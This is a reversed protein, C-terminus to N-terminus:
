QISIHYTYPSYIYGVFKICQSASQYIRQLVSIPFPYEFCVPRLSVPAIVGLLLIKLKHPLLSCPILFCDDIVTYRTGILLAVQCVLCHREILKTRRGLKRHSFPEAINATIEVILSFSWKIRDESKLVNRWETHKASVLLKVRLPEEMFRVQGRPM